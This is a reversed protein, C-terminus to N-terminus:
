LEESLNLYEGICLEIDMRKAVNHIDWEEQSVLAAIHNSGNQLGTTLFLVVVVIPLSSASFNM